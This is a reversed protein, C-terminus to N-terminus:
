LDQWDTGTWYQIRTVPHVEWLTGRTKGLHPPHEPDFMVWGSIRVKVRSAAITELRTATWDPHQDQWLPTAEVVVARSRLATRQAKDQRTASYMWIHIDTRDPDECNAEEPGQKVSRLIFGTLTVGRQEAPEVAALQEASFSRRHTPFHPQPDKFTQKFETVSMEDFSNPTTIRNKLVNQKPDNHAGSGEPPCDGLALSANVLLFLGVLCSPSVRLASVLM